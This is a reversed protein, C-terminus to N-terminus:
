RLSEALKEFSQNWGMESSEAMDDDEPWGTHTLKMKTKGDPLKEFEFTVTLEPFNEAVGYVVPAPNGDQDMFNDTFVLKKMPVIEKYEGGSYMPKDWESGAPGNMVFLYKGGERLDVKNGSSTFDKPGWWKSVEEPDTFAAWVKEIPADFVPEIKLVEKEAM